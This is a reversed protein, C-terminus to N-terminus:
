VLGLDKAISILHTTNNAEFSNKMKIIKKEVSSLSASKRGLKKLRKEIEPQSLGESLLQLIEIDLEDIETTLMPKKLHALHPSIYKKNSYVAEIAKTLEVASDRGKSVYADVDLDDLLYRIKYGKEEISYVIIKIDLQDKNITKVLEEGSLIKEDMHSKKFSLDTILLEFPDNDLYSKKIKLYAEDCYKTYVVQFPDMADLLNKLGLSISDIDEAVIIKKFM